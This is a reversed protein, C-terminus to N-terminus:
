GNVVGGNYMQSYEPTDDNVKVKIEAVDDAMADMKRELNDLKEIIKQIILENM